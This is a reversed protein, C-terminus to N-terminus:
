LLTGTRSSAKRGWAPTEWGGSHVPGPKKAWYGSQASPPLEQIAETERRRHPKKRGSVGKLPILRERERRIM